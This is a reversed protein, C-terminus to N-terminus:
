FAWQLRIAIQNSDITAPDVGPVNLPQNQFYYRGELNVRVNAIALATVGLVVRNKDLGSTNTVEVIEYRAYPVLWPYLFYRLDVTYINENILSPFMSLNVAPSSGFITSLISDNGDGRLYGFGLAFDSYSVLIDGGFRDFPNVDTRTGAANFISDYTRYWFGGFAVSNDVWYKSPPTALGGAETTGGTGDYGLGGFKFNLQAYYDRESNSTDSKVVGFDYRWCKGFGNIEFGPQSGLNTESAYLYDNYQFSNDFRVNPLSIELKGINGGKLNLHHDGVIGSLIDQYQLWAATSSVTQGNNVPDPTFAVETFFSWHDGFTGAAHIDIENQFNFEVRNTHTGTTDGVVDGIINFSVPPIGPLSSPWISEPFIKKYAEAGMSVPEQKVYVEDAGGPIKYGNLRFAEGFASLKPFPAHCTICTTKYKRAFVPIAGADKIFLGLCFVILVVSAFFIKRM